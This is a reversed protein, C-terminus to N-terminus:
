RWEHQRFVCFNKWSVEMEKSVRLLEEKEVVEKLSRAKRQLEDYHDCVRQHERKLSDHINIIDLTTM